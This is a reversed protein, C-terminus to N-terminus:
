ETVTFYLDNHSKAVEYNFKKGERNEIAYFKYKAVENENVAELYSGDKKVTGGAVVQWNENDKSGYIVFSKGDVVAPDGEIKIRDKFSGKVSANEFVFAKSSPAASEPTIRIAGINHQVFYMNIIFKTYTYSYKKGNEAAIAFSTFKTFKHDYETELNLSEGYAVPTTKGIFVWGDKKNWGYIDFVAKSDNTFNIVQIYDGYPGKEARPDLVVANSVGEVTFEPADAFAGAMLMLMAAVAIVFKNAKM